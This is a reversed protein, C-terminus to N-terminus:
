KHCSALTSEFTALYPVGFFVSAFNGAWFESSLGKGETEGRMLPNNERKGGADDEGMENKLQTWPRLTWLSENGKNKMQGATAFLSYLGFFM